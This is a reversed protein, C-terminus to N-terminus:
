IKEKPFDGSHIWVDFKNGDFLRWANNVCAITYNDLNLKRFLTASKGSGIYLVNM